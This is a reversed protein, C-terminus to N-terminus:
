RAVRSRRHRRVVPVRWRAVEIAEGDHILLDTRPQLDDASVSPPPNAAVGALRIV